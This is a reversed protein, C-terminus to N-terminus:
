ETQDESKIKWLWTLTRLMVVTDGAAIIFRLENLCKYQKKMIYLKNIQLRDSNFRCSWAQLVHARGISSRGRHLFHSKFGHYLITTNILIPPGIVRKGGTLVVRAASQAWMRSVRGILCTLGCFYTIPPVWQSSCCIRHIVSHFNLTFLRPGQPRNSVQILKHKGAKAPYFNMRMIWADGPVAINFLVLAFCFFACYIKRNWWLLYLVAPKGSPAGVIEIRLRQYKIYFRTPEALQTRRKSLTKTNTTQVIWGCLM